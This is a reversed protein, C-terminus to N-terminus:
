VAAVPGATSLFLWGTLRYGRAARASTRRPAAPQLLASDTRGFVVVGAARRSMMTVAVAEPTIWGIRVRLTFDFADPSIMAMGTCVPSSTFFPCIPLACTQVGTVTLDRIGDEAQFFFLQM